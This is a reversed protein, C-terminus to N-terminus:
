HRLSANLYKMYDAYSAFIPTPRAQCGNTLVYNRIVRGEKFETVRSSDYVGTQPNPTACVDCTLCRAAAMPTRLLGVLLAEEAM